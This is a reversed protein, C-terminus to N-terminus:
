IRPSLRIKIFYPVSNAICCYLYYSTVLSSNLVVTSFREEGSDELGEAISNHISVKNRRYKSPCDNVHEILETVPFDHLCYVCQELDDGSAGVAAGMHASASDKTKVENGVVVSSTGTVSASAVIASDSYSELSYRNSSIVAVPEARLITGAEDNRHPRCVKCHDVLESVPFFKTCSPCEEMYEEKTPMSALTLSSRSNVSSLAVRHSEVEPDIDIVVRSSERTCVEAHAVLELVPFLKSCSPCQEISIDTRLVPIPYAKSIGSEVQNVGDTTDCVRKEKTAHTTYKNASTNNATTKQCIACHTPLEVIPFLKLCKPCREKSIERTLSPVSTASTAKPELKIELSAAVKEVSRSSLEEHSIKERKIIETTDDAIQIKRKVGVEIVRASSSSHEPLISTTELRPKEQKSSDRCCELEVDASEHAAKEKLVHVCDESSAMAISAGLTTTMESSGSPNMAPIETTLTESEQPLQVLLLKSDGVADEAAVNYQLMFRYQACLKHQPALLLICDGPCLDVRVGKGLKVPKSNRGENDGKLVWTGNSSLDQVSCKLPKSSDHSRLESSKEVEVACHVSSIYPCPVVLECSHNRGIRVHDGPCLEKCIIKVGAM